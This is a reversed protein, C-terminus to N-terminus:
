LFDSGPHSPWESNGSVNDRDSSGGEGQGSRGFLCACAYQGARVLPTLVHCAASVKWTVHAAVSAVLGGRTYAPQIIWHSASFDAVFQLTAGAVLALSAAREAEPSLGAAGSKLLTPRREHSALLSALAPVVWGYVMKLCKLIPEHLSQDRLANSYYRVHAMGFFVSTGLGWFLESYPSSRTEKNCSVPTQAQNNNRCDDNDKGKATSQDKVAAVTRFMCNKANTLLVIGKKVITVLGFRYIVEHAFPTVFFTQIMWCASKVASDLVAEHSNCGLAEAMVSPGHKEVHHVLFSPIGVLYYLFNGLHCLSAEAALPLTHWADLQPVQFPETLGGILFVFSKLQEISGKGRPRYYILADRQVFMGVVLAAALAVLGNCVIAHRERAQQYGMVIDSTVKSLRALLTPNNLSM